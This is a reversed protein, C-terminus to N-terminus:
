GIMLIGVHDADIQGLCTKLWVMSDIMGKGSDPDDQENFEKFYKTLESASYCEPTISDSLRDRQEHTLIFCTAQRAESLFTALEDHPSKM